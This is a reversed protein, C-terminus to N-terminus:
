SVSPRSGTDSSWTSSVTAARYGDSSAARALIRAAETRNQPDEIFEAARVHVRILAAQIDPNKESWSQRVALVKEAARVLIDSVFHLIHGLGLDVAVSSWPAGVCFGDIHGSALSEVM